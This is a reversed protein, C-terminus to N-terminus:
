RFGCKTYQEKYWQEWVYALPEWQDDGIFDRIAKKINEPIDKDNNPDDIAAYAVLVGPKNIMTENDYESSIGDWFEGYKDTLASANGQKLWFRTPTKMIYKYLYGNQIAAEASFTTIQGKVKVKLEPKFTIKDMIASPVSCVVYDGSFVKGSKTTVYIKEQTTDIVTVVENFHIFPKEYGEEKYKKKLSDLMSTALSQNGTKCRYLENLEFFKDGGGGLM